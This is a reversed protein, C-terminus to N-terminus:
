LWVFLESVIIFELAFPITIIPDWTEATGGTAFTEEVLRCNKRGGTVRGESQIDVEGNV